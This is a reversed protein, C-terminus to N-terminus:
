LIVIGAPLVESDVHFCHFAARERATMMVFMFWSSRVFVFVFVPAATRQARAAGVSEQLRTISYQVTIDQKHSTSSTWRAPMPLTQEQTRAQGALYPPVERERTFLSFLTPERRQASHEKIKQERAIAAREIERANNSQARFPSLLRCLSSRKTDVVVTGDM